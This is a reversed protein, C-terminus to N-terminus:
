KKMNRNAFSKESRIRRNSEKKRPVSSKKVGLTKRVRDRDKAKPKVGQKALM